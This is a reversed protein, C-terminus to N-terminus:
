ADDTTVSFSVIHEWHPLIRIEGELKSSRTYEFLVAIIGTAYIKYWAVHFFPFITPIGCV